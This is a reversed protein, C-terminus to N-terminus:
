HSSLSVIEFATKCTSPLTDYHRRTVFLQVNCCSIDTTPWTRQHISGHQPSNVYPYHRGQTYESNNNISMSLALETHTKPDLEKLHERKRVVCGCQAAEYERMRGRSLQLRSRQWRQWPLRLLNLSRHWHRQVAAHM